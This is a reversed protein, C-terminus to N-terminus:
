KKSGCEELVGEFEDTISDWSYNEVFRRAKRGEKEISGNGILEIAKKIADEPRDVYIVGNDNGFEKMVGTAYASYMNDGEM